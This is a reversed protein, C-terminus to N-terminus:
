LNRSGVTVGDLDWPSLLFRRRVHFVQVGFVGYALPLAAEVFPLLQELEPPNGIDVDPNSFYAVVDPPLKSVQFLLPNLTRKTYTPLDYSPSVDLHFFM